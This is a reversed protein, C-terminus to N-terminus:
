SDSCESRSGVGKEFFFALFCPRFFFFFVGRLRGGLVSMPWSDSFCRGWVMHLWCGPTPFNPWGLTVSSASCPQCSKARKMLGGFGPSVGICYIWMPVMQPKAQKRVHKEPVCRCGQVQIAELECKPAGFIAQNTSTEGKGLTYKWTGHWNEPPAHEISTTYLM